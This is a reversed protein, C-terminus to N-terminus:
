KKSSDKPALTPTITKQLTYYAIIQFGATDLREDGLGLLQQTLLIPSGHSVVIVYQNELDCESDNVITNLLSTMRKEIADPTEGGFQEPNEPFWFDAEKYQLYDHGDRKGADAEIARADVEKKFLPIQLKGILIDATEITRPLPSAIIKCVKDSAIGLALLKNATDRVQARGRDTLRVPQYDPNNPHSSYIHKVNHEGEGHRVLIIGGKGLKLEDLKSEKLEPDEPTSQLLTDGM